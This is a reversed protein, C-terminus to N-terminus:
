SLESVIFTLAFNSKNWRLVDEKMHKEAKEKEKEKVTEGQVEELAPASTKQGWLSCLQLLLRPTPGEGPLVCVLPLYLWAPIMVNLFEHYVFRSM